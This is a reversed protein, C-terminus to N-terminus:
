RRTPIPKERRGALCCHKQTKLEGQAQILPGPIELIDFYQFGKHLSGQM